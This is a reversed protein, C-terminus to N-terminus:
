FSKNKASVILHANIFPWFRNCEKWTWSKQRIKDEAFKKIKKGEWIDSQVFCRSHVHDLIWESLPGAFWEQMPANWGMKLKRLRTSEPLIGKVADRLIRKTYGAGIKSTQPLAFTFTVLRWDMFPMRIEIGHRMAIRDYNRLISPLTTLHFNQFIIKEASNLHAPAQMTSSFEAKAPLVKLWPDGTLIRQSRGFLKRSRYSIGSRIYNVARKASSAFHQKKSINNKDEQLATRDYSPQMELYIRELECAREVNGANTAQIWAEHVLSPYGYLMEDVGHGDLSVFIGMQRMAEYTQTMMMPTTSIFDMAITDQEIQSALNDFQPVLLELKGGVFDAVEKAYPTEDLATNPLSCVFARRWDEPARLIQNEVKSLAMTTAYVSSSDIGGSLASAIPVDSRLRIRCADFLLRRFEIVQNEYDDPISPLEKSTSWWQECRFDNNTLLLCHGPLLAQIDRFITKGMGELVFSNALNLAVMAPDVERQYNELYKFAITESAFAFLAKPHYIFYLPKVGFRDRSLFLNQKKRDWIAFAWMGNFRQQCGDGWADYAALIVETDSNTFFSYGCQQLEARLELFNYIEGNFVIYYRGDRSIMPQAAAAELDLISLRCHGLMLSVEPIAVADQRDPGRHQLSQVFNRFHDPAIPMGDFRWLGAIACM